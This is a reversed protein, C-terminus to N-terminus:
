NERDVSIYLGEIWKDLYSLVRIYEKRPIGYQKTIICSRLTNEVVRLKALNTALVYETDDM